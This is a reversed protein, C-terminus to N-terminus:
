FKERMVDGENPQDTRYDVRDPELNPRRRPREPLPPLEPDPAPEALPPPDKLEDPEIPPKGQAWRRENELAIARDHAQEAEDKKAEARLQRLKENADFCLQCIKGVNGNVLKRTVPEGCWLGLNPNAHWSHGPRTCYCPHGLNNAKKDQGGQPNEHQHSTM